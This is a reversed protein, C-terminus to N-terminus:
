SASTYVTTTGAVTAFSSTASMSENEENEECVSNCSPSKLVSRASCAEASPTNVSVEGAARDIRVNRADDPTCTCLNSLAISGCTFILTVSPVSGVIISYADYSSQTEEERFPSVIAVPTAPSGVAACHTFAEKSVTRTTAISIGGPDM